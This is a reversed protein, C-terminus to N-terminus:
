QSSSFSGGTLHYRQTYVCVTNYSGQFDHERLREYIQTVKRKGLCISKYTFLAFGMPNNYASAKIPRASGM